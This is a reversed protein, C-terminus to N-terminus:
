GNTRDRVPHTTAKAAALADLLAAQVGEVRLTDISLLVTNNCPWDDSQVDMGVVLGGRTGDLHLAMEPPPGAAARKVTDVCHQSPDSYGAAFLAYLRASRVPGGRHGGAANGALPPPLAKSWDVLAGNQLDYTLGWDVRSPYSGAVSCWSGDQAGVSVYRPGHMVAEATRSVNGSERVAFWSTRCRDYSQRGSVDLTRLAANIRRQAPTAPRAIRPMSQYNRGIPRPQRMEVLGSAARAPAAMALVALLWALGNRM